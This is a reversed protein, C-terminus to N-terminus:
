RPWMQGEELWNDAMIALDKLDVKYDEYLDAECCGIDLWENALVAFDRFDVVCDWNLDGIPREPVCRPVYLRIDDFYVTGEPYPAPAPDNGDGFGITIRAVKALNVGAFETLAINWEHWNADRIDNMDGIPYPVKATKAPLSGDTLKVYMQENADNLLNGRGSLGGYFWLSLAKVGNATWDKGIGSPLPNLGTTNAYAESYYRYFSNYEYKMSNGDGDHVLNADTNGTQLSIAAGTYATRTWVAGLADDDAYSDFDEVVLYNRTRFHWVAGKWITTDNVEDIRWYYTTDLKLLGTCPDYSNSDQRGRGPLTNPDNSYRVDAYDTGFYVDHTAADIGPRWSLVVDRPVDTERCDPRPCHVFELINCDELYYEDAGMDVVDEGVCRGNMIREEGDIDKAPLGGAPTNTGADICPSCLTLHLGDAELMPDENINGEGAWGDEVDSYTVNADGSIQGGENDWLICNTVTTNYGYIGGGGYAGAVNGTFTCNTVKSNGPYSYNYMGGGYYAVNGNFICNTVKPSGGSNYMGGGRGGGYGGYASNGSFTCNTITPSSYTPWGGYNYMGGGSDYYDPYGPYGPGNANGGTITFGDLVATEDTGSGTVVHYSNEARCPDSLLDYPDVGERDNGKLDGSLITEYRGIDRADPEPEGFGAYGGKIGVCNILEFTAERDNPEVGAGEDPRYTGEAVWVECGPSINADELADQLYNYADEWSTGNNYGNADVDVYVVGWCGRTDECAMIDHLCDGGMECCNTIMECPVVNENVKVTLILCNSGNPGLTGIDWTVTHSGPNYDGGNSAWVFNVEPPLSDTIVVNTDGYGNAAYCISYTINADPAVCGGEPVDDKKTLTPYNPCVPTNAEAYIPEIICTGTMRCQNTITSQTQPQVCGVKVTLTVCDSENPELTGINWVVTNADPQTYDGSASIFELEPPLDDVIVVNTDGYGNADYCINYTIYDGHTVCNGDNVDVKTLTPSCVPTDECDISRVEEGSKIKCCNTITGGPEVCPKVNVKLTVFGADGPHLTGIYWTYTHDGLNYNPDSPNNPEVEGPLEDIINVDNIDPCNLGAPYNYDITYTIEDGPGICGNVDDVKTLEVWGGVSEVCIGAPGIINPNDEVYCSASPWVSGDFVKITNDVATVYVLGTEQDVALGTASTGIGNKIYSNPANTDTLDTRVLYNHAYYAGTFLYKDRGNNLVAVTLAYYSTGDAEIEIRKQFTWDNTNYCYVVNTAASHDLIFTVYLLDEKEDLALDCTTLGSLEGQGSQDTVLVERDLSLIKNSPDWSYVFIKLDNREAAYLKNKENDFVIGALNVANPAAVNAEHVMTRANVLEIIAPDGINEHSVFLYQEDVDVAVGVPGHYAGTEFISNYVTNPEIATGNVDYSTIKAPPGVMYGHNTIAYVSKAEAMGCIGSILLIILSVIIFSKKAQRKGTKM